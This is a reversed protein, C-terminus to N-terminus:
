EGGRGTTRGGPLSTRFRRGDERCLSRVWCQGGIAAIHPGAAGEAWPGAMAFGRLGPLTRSLGDRMQRNLGRPAPWPQLGCYRGTQEEITVPTTIETCEVSSRVGPIWRDIREIVAEAVRDAEAPYADPARDRLRQWYAFSGHTWATIVSRGAPAYGTAPGHIEIYLTERPTEELLLPEDLLVLRGRPGGPAEDAVGLHIALGFAQREPAARYYMDITEDVHEGSLLRYITAHGDAASVVVDAQHEVGDSTRVGVARGDEVIVTEIRTGYEIEGGLDLYRREIRRAVPVPSEVPHGLDGRAAAAIWIAQELVPPDDALTHCPLAALTGHLLPDSCRAAFESVGVTRWRRLSRLRRRTRRATWRGALPVAFPDLDTLRRVLEAFEDIRAADGPAAELFATRLRAPDSPVDLIRGTAGDARALLSGLGVPAPDFAGLEEWIRRLPTGAAAGIWPLPASCFTYAGRRWVGHSGGPEDRAEFITPRYRNMQAYCGISLGTVGAGIVAITRSM